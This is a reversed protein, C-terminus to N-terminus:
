KLPLIELMDKFFSNEVRATNLFEGVSYYNTELFQEGFRLYEGKEDCGYRLNYNKGKYKFEYVRKIDVLYRFEELTM